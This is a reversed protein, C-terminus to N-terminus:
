VAVEFIDHVPTPAGPGTNVTSVTLRYLDPPLATKSFVFEDGDIEVDLEALIAGSSSEIRAKVGGMTTDTNVLRAHIVIPEGSTYLDQLDIAIAPRGITSPVIEPGRIVSLNPIQMQKLRELLGSLIQNNNQLSGHMEPHFTERYEEGLEIPTASVRPVTGDGDELLSDIMAPVKRSIKLTGNILEASQYSPQQTGVIPITKFEKRYRESKLHTNVASEIERHFALARKAREQDVNPINVTEAVRQFRGNVNVMEYIPLLQYTSTFSRVVETLDVILNKNGNALFDLAKVSGRHPTGFTILARCNKWGELVEAYYRAILGGMSHALFIIKADKNLHRYQEIRPQIFRALSGALYRMDRRWDYPFEFYNTGEKVNFYDHITKRIATYGDIKWYFPILHADPMLGTATIGDGLDDNILDDDGLKLQQLAVHPRPLANWLARFSLGWLENGDKKLVSGTIGPLLVIMDRMQTKAMQVELGM